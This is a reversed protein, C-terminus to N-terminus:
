CKRKWRGSINSYSNNFLPGNVNELNGFLFEMTILRATYFVNDILCLATLQRLGLRAFVYLALSENPPRYIKGLHWKVFTEKRSIESGLLSGRVFEFCRARVHKRAHLSAFSSNHWLLFTGTFKHTVSDTHRGILPDGKNLSGAEDSGRGNHLSLRAPFGTHFM